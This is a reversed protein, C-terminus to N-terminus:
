IALPLLGFRPLVATQSEVCDLPHPTVIASVNLTSSDTVSAVGATTVCPALPKSKLRAGFPKLQALECHVTCTFKVGSDETNFGAVLVAYPSGTTYFTSSTMESVPPPLYLGSIDRPPGAQHSGAASVVFYAGVLLMTLTVCFALKTMKSM